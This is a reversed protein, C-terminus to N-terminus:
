WRVVQPDLTIGASHRRCSRNEPGFYYSEAILFGVDVSVAEVSKARSIWDPRDM